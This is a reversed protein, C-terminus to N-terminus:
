RILAIALVAAAVAAAGNLAWLLGRVGPRTAFLPKDGGDVAGFAADLDAYRGLIRGRGNRAQYEGDIREIM